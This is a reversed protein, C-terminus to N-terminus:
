TAILRFEGAGVAFFSTQNRTKNNFVKELYKVMRRNRRYVIQKRLYENLGNIINTETTTIDSMNSVSPLPLIETTQVLSEFNGCFFTKVYDDQHSPPGNDLETLPELYDLQKRLAVIVQTILHLM